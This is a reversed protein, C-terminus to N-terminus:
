KTRRAAGPERRCRCGFIDEEGCTTNVTDNMDEGDGGKLWVNCCGFGTTTPLYVAEKTMGCRYGANDGTSEASLKDGAAPIAMEIQVDNWWHFDGLM